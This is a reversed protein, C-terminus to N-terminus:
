QRTILSSKSNRPRFNAVLRNKWVKTWTVFSAWLQLCNFLGYFSSWQRGFDFGYDWLCWISHTMPVSFLRQLTSSLNSSSCVISKAYNIKQRNNKFNGGNNLDLISLEWTSMEGLPLNWAYGSVQKGRNRAAWHGKQPVKRSWFASRLIVGYFQM